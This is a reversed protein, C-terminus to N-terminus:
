GSYDIITVDDSRSSDGGPDVESEPQDLTEPVCLQGRRDRTADLVLPYALYM